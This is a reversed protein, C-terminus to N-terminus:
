LPCKENNDLMKLITVGSSYLQGVVYLIVAEGGTSDQCLTDM